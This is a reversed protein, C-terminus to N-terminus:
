PTTRRWTWRRRAWGARPALPHPPPQQSPQSPQMPHHCFHPCAPWSHWPEHNQRHTGPCAHMPASCPLAWCAAGVQLRAQNRLGERQVGQGARHAGQHHGCAGHGAPTCPPDTHTHTHCPSSSPPSLLPTTLPTPEQAPDALRCFDWWAARLTHTWGLVLTARAGGPRAVGAAQREAGPGGWERGLHVQAGAPHHRVPPHTGLHVGQQQVGARLLLLLCTLRPVLGASAARNGCQSHCLRLCGVPPCTWLHRPRLSGV